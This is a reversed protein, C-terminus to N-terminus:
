VATKTNINRLLKVYNLYHVVQSIVSYLDDYLWYKFNFRLVDKFRGFFNIEVELGKRIFIITSKKRDVMM